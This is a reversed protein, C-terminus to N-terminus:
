SGQESATQRNVTQIWADAQQYYPSDASTLDKVKRFQELADSVRNIRLLFVGRNYNAALHDPDEELVMNTHRIAEMPNRPDYQYVWGLDARVDMNNPEQELVREYADIALLAVDTRRDPSVTEVWDYLLDGARKWAAATDLEKALRHQEIAARDIRRIEVLYGVLDRRIEIKASSDAQGIATRFSDVTSAFRQAIPIAEHEEIVAASRVDAPAEVASASETEAAVNQKSVVTIMYLAVVILVALGVLAGVYRSLESDSTATEEKSGPVEDTARERIPPAAKIARTSSSRTSTERAALEQLESGCRSCFKADLPNKWGCQNCFVGAHPGGGPPPESRAGTPSEGQGASPPQRSAADSATTDVPTGCLDCREAGEALRAGCEPCIPDSM